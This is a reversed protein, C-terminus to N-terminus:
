NAYVGPQFVMIVALLVILLFSIALLTDILLRQNKSEM